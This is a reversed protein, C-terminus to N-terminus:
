IVIFNYEGEKMEIYSDDSYYEKTVPNAEKELYENEYLEKLTIEDDVCVNDKFCKIGAEIIRKESVIMLNDNYNQVVKVVTPILIIIFIFIITGFIIKRNM